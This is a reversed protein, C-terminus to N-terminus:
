KALHFSIERIEKLKRLKLAIKQAKETDTLDCVIKIINFAGTTAGMSTVDIINIHSRAIIATIDKLLGVRSIVSLKFEMKQPRHKKTLATEKSRLAGRIRDRASATKVFELWDESPMKNKQTLIEVLDGSSLQHDLPVFRDNVKAAVCSNGLETHIHYAFDVPTSGYPLDIVDGTPTIAFIRDKFFEIKMTDLIEDPNKGSEIHSQWQKLQQVWTLEKAILHPHASHSGQQRQKYLWHAAIGNENEEHMQRTRIQFEIIQHNPGIVTTHLSRYGNPKPMAIYDKIRGPLPPYHAHLIGLVGYCSATSDVIIRMAILDYITSIDMDHGIMKRYLSSYRKARFNITFDRIDNERLLTEIHPKFSELYRLREEYQAPLTKKLWAYEKPHLYPFALDQLDGSVHHMGLRYALPAYIEDTEAAIRTQKQPPVASLTQMNHLRDALKIFVVRIDASLALIMKRLNEVQAAAGRYKIKSIKTVGNVLFAVDTGFEATIREITADTDEVTDHLIGSAVTAEDLGWVLLTEGVALPHIIYPEGSKRKQGTHAATSFTVARAILGTPNQRITESLKAPITYTM